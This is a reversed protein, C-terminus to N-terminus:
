PLLCGREPEDEIKPDERKQNAISPLHLVFYQLEESEARLYM